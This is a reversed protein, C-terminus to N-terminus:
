AQLKQVESVQQELDQLVIHFGFQFEFLVILGLCRVFESCTTERDTLGPLRLLVQLLLLVEHGLDPLEPVRELLGSVEAERGVEVIADHEVDSGQM